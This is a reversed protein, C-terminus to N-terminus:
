QLPKTNFQHKYRDYVNEVRFPTYNSYCDLKIMEKICDTIDVGLSNALTAFKINHHHKNGEVFLIGYKNLYGVIYFIKKELETMEALVVREATNFLCVEKNTSKEENLVSKNRDSILIPRKYELEGLGNLVTLLDDLKTLEKNSELIAKGPYFLRAADKVAPDSEPFLAILKKIIFDRLLKDTVVTDLVFMIRFKRKEQSDSFTAYSVQFMLKYKILREKVEEPTFGSDFDLAFIQQSQWNANSRNGNFVAPSYVFGLELMKVLSDIGDKLPVTKNLGASIKGVEQAEPKRSLRVSPNYTVRM